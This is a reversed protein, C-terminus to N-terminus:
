LAEYLAACDFRPRDVTRKLACQQHYATKDEAQLKPLAIPTDETNVFYLRTGKRLVPYTCRRRWLLDHEYLSPVPFVIM